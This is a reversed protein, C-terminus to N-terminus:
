RSVSLRAAAPIARPPGESPGRSSAVLVGLFCTMAPFITSFDGFVLLFSLVHQGLMAAVWPVVTSHTQPPRPPHLKLCTWLTALFLWALLGCGVAGATDYISLIGTHFNKCVIFARFVSQEPNPTLYGNRSYYDYEAPDFTFGKGFWPKIAAYERLYIDIIQRRFDNSSDASALAVEDWNGPLFSLTRQVSIPLTFYRQNGTTLVLLLLFVPFILVLCRLRYYYWCLCALLAVYDFLSSRYGSLLSCGVSVLGLVGVWWRGPRLCTHLPYKSGLFALLTLGLSGLIGLRVMEGQFFLNQYAEINVNGVFRYIPEAAEPLFTTIMYPIGSILTALLYWFPLHRLQDPHRRAINYSAYSAASGLLITFGRRSGFDSSGFARLGIGDGFLHYIVILALGVIPLFFYYPVPSLPLRLIAVYKVLFYLLTILSAVELFSLNLPLFNLTGQMALGCPLLLCVADEFFFFIVFILSVGALLGLLLYQESAVAYGSYGALGLGILAILWARLNANM